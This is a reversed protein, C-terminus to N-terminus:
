PKRSIATIWNREIDEDIEVPDFGAEKLNHRYEEPTYVRGNTLEMWYKNREQFFEHSYAEDIILFMGGPKLVRLVEKFASRLDNWYYDTEFATVLDFTNQPYPMASVNGNKIEVTGQKVLDENTKFSFDVMDESFDIGCIRSTPSFTNILTIAGGGGCGIDLIASNDAITIHNLGRKWLEFHCINMEGAVIRGVDGTPRAGQKIMEDTWEM